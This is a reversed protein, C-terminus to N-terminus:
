PSADKQAPRLRPDDLDLRYLIQNYDHRPTAVANSSFERTYTGEFLLVPSDSPTLDLHLCPNYFTHNRHTLVKVAPGWPGTPAEAEAYWLEGLTSPAGGSQLFVTVWRRRWSQWGM